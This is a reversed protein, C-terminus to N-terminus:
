WKAKTITNSEYIDDLPMVQDVPNRERIFSYYHGGEATGTHVTVGILEYVFSEAEEGGEDPENVASMAPLPPPPPPPPPSLDAGVNPVEEVVSSNLSGVAPILNKEMYGSMNLLLPFSFHTNVKEKMMTIM